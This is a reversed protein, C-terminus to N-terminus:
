CTKNEFIFVLDECNLIICKSPTLESTSLKRESYANLHTAGKYETLSLSKKHMTFNTQKSKCSTNPQTNSVSNIHVEFTISYYAKCPKTIFDIFAKFGEKLDSDFCAKVIEEILLKFKSFSIRNSVEIKLSEINKIKLVFM